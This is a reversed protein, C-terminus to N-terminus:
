LVRAAGSVLLLKLRAKVFASYPPNHLRRVRGADARMTVGRLSWVLLGQLSSCPAPGRYSAPPLLPLVFLVFLFGVSLCLPCVSVPMALGMASEGLLDTTDTSLSLNQVLLTQHVLAALEQVATTKGSGTEGVLLM